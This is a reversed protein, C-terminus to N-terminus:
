RPGIEGEMYVLEFRVQAGAARLTADLAPDDEVTLGVHDHEPRAWARMAELLPRALDPRAVRFPFAGPYAPDFMAVGAVAVSASASPETLAVVVRGRRARRAALTGPPLRFREEFPGHATAELLSATTGTPGEPLADVRSWPMRLAATDYAKTLGFRAYLRLAPVNDVKVNLCWRRCGAGRLREAIARMLEAGIGRGRAQPSVVVNMVYGLEGIVMTLGYGVPQGARELFLINPLLEAEWKERPPVPDDVGLEALLETYRPYDDPTAPRARPRDM